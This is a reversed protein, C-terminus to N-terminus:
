SPEVTYYNPMFSEPLMDKVEDWNSITISAGWNGFECGEFKVDKFYIRVFPKFENKIFLDRSHTYKLRTRM